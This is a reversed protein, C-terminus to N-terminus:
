ATPGFTSLHSGPLYGSRSNQPSDPNAQAISQPARSLPAAHRIHRAVSLSDRTALPPYAFGSDRYGGGGRKEYTNIRFTTLTSQKSVSKCTNMRSTTLPPRSVRRSSRVFAVAFSLASACLASLQRLSSPALQHTPLSVHKPVGWGPSKPFSAALQQFCLVPTPFLSVLPQLPNVPRSNPGSRRSPCSFKRRRPKSIQAPVPAVM